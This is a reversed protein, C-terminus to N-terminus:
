RGLFPWSHSNQGLGGSLRGQEMKAYLVFSQRKEKKHSM